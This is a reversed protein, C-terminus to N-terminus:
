NKNEELDILADLGLFYSKKGYGSIQKICVEEIVSNARFGERAHIDSM